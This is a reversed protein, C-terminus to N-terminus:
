VFSVGDADPSTQFLRKVVSVKRHRWGGPKIHGSPGSLTHPLSGGHGSSPKGSTGAQAEQRHNQDADGTGRRGGRPSPLRRGVIRELARKLLASIAVREERQAIDYWRVRGLAILHIALQTRSPTERRRTLSGACGGRTGVLGRGLCRGERHLLVSDIPRDDVGRVLNGLGLGQNTYRRAESHRRLSDALDHVLNLSDEILVLPHSGSFRLNAVGDVPGLVSGEHAQEVKHRTVKARSALADRAKGQQASDPVVSRASDNNQAARQRKRAQEKEYAEWAMVVAARQDDTLHRRDHDAVAPLSAARRVQARSGRSGAGRHDRGGPRREAWEARALPSARTFGHGSPVGACELSHATRKIGRRNGGSGLRRRRASPIAQTHKEGQVERNIQCHVFIPCGGRNTTSARPGGGPANETAGAHAGTYARRLGRRPHRTVVLRREAVDRNELQPRQSSRCTM